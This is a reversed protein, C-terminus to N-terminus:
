QRAKKRRYVRVVMWSDGCHNRWANWAGRSTKWTYPIATRRLRGDAMRQASATFMGDRTALYRAVEYSALEAKRMKIRYGILRRTRKHYVRVLKGEEM